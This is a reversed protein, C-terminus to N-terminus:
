DNVKSDVYAGYEESSTAINLRLPRHGLLFVFLGRELNLMFLFYSQLYMWM